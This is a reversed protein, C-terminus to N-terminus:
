VGAAIADTPMLYDPLDSSWAGVTTSAAAKPLWSTIHAVKNAPLNGTELSRSGPVFPRRAPGSARRHGPNALEPVRVQIGIPIIPLM